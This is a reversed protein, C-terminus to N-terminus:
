NLDCSSENALNCNIRKCMSGLLLNHTASVIINYGWFHISVRDSNPPLLSIFVNGLDAVRNSDVERRPDREVSWGKGQILVSSSILNANVVIWM